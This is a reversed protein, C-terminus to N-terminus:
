YHREESRYNILSSIRAQSDAMPAMPAATIVDFWWDRLKKRNMGVAASATTLVPMFVLRIM